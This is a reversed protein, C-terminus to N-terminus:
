PRSPDPAQECSHDVVNCRLHSAHPVVLIVDTDSEWYLGEVDAYAAPMVIKAKTGPEDRQQVVVATFAVVEGEAGPNAPDTLWAGWTGSPDLQVDQAHDPFGTPGYVFESIDATTPEHGPTWSHGGLVGGYTVTHHDDVSILQV